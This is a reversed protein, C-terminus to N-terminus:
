TAITIGIKHCNQYHANHSLIEAALHMHAATMVKVVWHSQSTIKQSHSVTLQQQIIEEERKGEEGAHEGLHPAAVSQCCTHSLSTYAPALLPPSVAQM